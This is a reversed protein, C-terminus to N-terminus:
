KKGEPIGYFNVCKNEPPDGCAHPHTVHLVGGGSHECEEM